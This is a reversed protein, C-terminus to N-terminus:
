SKKKRLISKYFPKKKSNSQNNVTESHCKILNQDLDVVVIDALDVDKEIKQFMEKHCGIIFPIPASLFDIIEM